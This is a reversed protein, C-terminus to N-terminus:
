KKIPYEENDRHYITGLNIKKVTRHDLNCERGISSYSNGEKLLSIVKDIKESPIKNNRIPYELEENFYSRGNNIDSVSQQCIGVIEGIEKMSKKTNKLLDIVQEVSEPKDKLKNVENIERIPYKEGEIYYGEGQNVKTITNRSVNYEKAIQRIEKNSNKLLYIIEKVQEENLVSHVSDFGSLKIIPEERLPYSYGSLRYYEYSGCNITSMLNPNINLEDAIEKYTLKNQKLLKHIKELLDRDVLNYKNDRVSKLKSGLYKERIPYNIDEKYYSIGHNIYKIISDSVNFQEAIEKQTLQSNRLLERVEGAQEDTLVQNEKWTKQLALIGDGGETLNYGNEKNFTDYYAIWYQEREKMKDKDNEPITELLEFEEIKGYKQIAYHVAKKDKSGDPLNAHNNHENMRRKINTSLGIYSKGNPFNLKYIGSLHDSIKVDKVKIIESM